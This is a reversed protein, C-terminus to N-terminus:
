SAMRLPLIAKAMEKRIEQESRNGDSYESILNGIRGVLSRSEEDDSDALNAMFPWLWNELSALNRSGDVYEAVAHEIESQRGSVM